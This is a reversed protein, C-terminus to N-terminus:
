GMLRTVDVCNAMLWQRKKYMILRAKSFARGSTASSAQGCLRRRAWDAIEPPAGEHKSWWALATTSSHDGKKKTADNQGMLWNCLIIEREAKVSTLSYLRVLFKEIAISKIAVQVAISLCPYACLNCHFFHDKEAGTSIDSGCDSTLQHPAAAHELWENTPGFM